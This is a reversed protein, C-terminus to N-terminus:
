DIRDTRRSPGRKQINQKRLFINNILPNVKIDNHCCDLRSPRPTDIGLFFVTAENSAWLRLWLLVLGVKGPVLEDVVVGAGDCASRLDLKTILKM